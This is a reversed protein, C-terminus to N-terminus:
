KFTISLRELYYSKDATFYELTIDGAIETRFSLVVKKKGTFSTHNLLNGESDAVRLNIPELISDDAGDVNVAVTFYGDYPTNREAETEYIYLSDYDENNKIISRSHDELFLLEGSVDEKKVLHIIVIIIIICTLLMNVLSIVLALEM